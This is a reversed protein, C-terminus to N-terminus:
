FAYVKALRAHFQDLLWPNNATEASEFDAERRSTRPLM